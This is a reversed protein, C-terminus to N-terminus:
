VYMLSNYINIYQQAIDQLNMYKKAFEYNKLGHNMSCLKQSRKIASIISSTNNPDFTPNGTKHLLEGVNGIDPGIVVKKFLFALPINGSNLIEKRQIFVIDASSIYYPLEDHNIIEDVSKGQIHFLRCLPIIIFYGMQSLFRKLGNNYPPKKYFPFFRPALLYKNKIRAKIFAKLVMKKEETNRFKGFATIVFGNKPINLKKRAEEKTINENYTNEYIHHQIVVNSSDPYELKFQKLSYERMHVIITSNEEIVKYTKEIISNSYHPSTNHRTYIFKSGKQKFYLIREKLRDIVSIDNCNWGVVEEPWQFHIIDYDSDSEWFRKLSCEINLGTKKIEQYLTHVFLNDTDKEEFVLLVKM